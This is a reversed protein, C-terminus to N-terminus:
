LTMDSAAVSGTKIPNSHYDFKPLEMFIHGIIHRGNVLTRNNKSALNRHVNM